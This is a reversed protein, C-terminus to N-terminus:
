QKWRTLIFDDLLPSPSIIVREANSVPLYSHPLTINGAENLFSNFIFNNM